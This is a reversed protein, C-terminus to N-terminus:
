RGATKQQREFVEELWDVLMMMQKKVLENNQYKRCMEGSSDAVWQWFSESHMGYQMAIQNVQSIWGVVEDYFAKYDM